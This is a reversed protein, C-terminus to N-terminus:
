CILTSIAIQKEIQIYNKTLSIRQFNMVTAQITLLYRTCKSNSPDHHYQM